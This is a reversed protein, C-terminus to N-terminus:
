GNELPKSGGFTVTFETGEGSGVEVAAHLQGALMQVLRLGLSDAQRWDFGAPLGSGNDRVRLCVQGEPSGRLVVSVEGGTRDRFAHKLANSALENLVLGCPVAANVSLRVPELDTALRVGSAATGHARWLYNLLSLAYEAFEVQAMDASQYLKEHVLAMSRVRHTVDELVARMAANPVREAQLAVLSSIVQMNNKVRHHIEKLLVEKEALSARLQDEARKLPTIDLFAGVAGRPEGREDFLPAASSYLALTQGDERVVHIVQSSVTEGRAARQMPLETLSLERGEKLCRYAAPQPGGKSFEGGPAVGLMRENAPNGRIHHGDADEAIALGIPATEFITQLEAVRRQLEQNLRAIEQEAQRQETVDEFVTYVESLGTDGSRCVPVADISIWRYDSLQPNFVGMIVGCQQQGTRLAVM